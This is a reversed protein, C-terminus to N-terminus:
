KWMANIAQVTRDVLVQGGEPGVPTSEVVASYGGGKVARETALYGGSAGTLQIVFTQVAKSRAKIRIGYDLFLEFPNTAIAVDGLRIAHLEMQYSPNTEQQRYRDVVAQYWLMRRQLEPKKSLEECMAEAERAEEETVNRVPLQIDEVHHILTVDTHVDSKALEFVDDVAQCIRRAIEETRSLGRMTRMREEARKRYQLHPSQDGAAGPWGLVLLDEGYREHLQHRVDHWFDANVSSRSEVEQSPCAPNIAVATPNKHLDWFFLMEVGHDEYGEFHRFDPRNASGYMKATGDAYVARRNHGVVAHGLAWSVGGPKRSEWAAVVVQGLRGLLFEVYESPRMVDEDPILYRGELMVPATHTHTATLFLKKVDFDPLKSRIRRRLDDQITGRIAVLDCSVMIAQDLSKDKHRTELALATATVPNDVSRAIRTRMQGSLAVPKDPTISTTAGGVLLEAAEANGPTSGVLPLLVSWTVTLLVPNRKARQM